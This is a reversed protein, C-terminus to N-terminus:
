AELKACPKRLFPPLLDCIPSKFVAISRYVTHFHKSNKQHDADGSRAQNARAYHESAGCNCDDGLIAIVGSQETVESARWIIDLGQDQAKILHSVLVELLLPHQQGM